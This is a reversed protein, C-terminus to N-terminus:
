APQVLVRGVYICVLGWSEAEDLVLQIRAFMRCKMSKVPICVFHRSNLLVNLFGVGDQEYLGKEKLKLIAM